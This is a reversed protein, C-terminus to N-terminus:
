SPQHQLPLVARVRFGGEPRVGAVITGGYLAARERMGILGHGSGNGNPGGTGDDLVEITVDDNGYSVVVDARGAAAHKRVNTLAEQVIRYASLEIGPALPKQAGEIRLSTPLGAASVDHVLGGLRAISPQPALSLAHEDHRLLGLLRRMEILTQGGTERISRFSERASQPDEELVREGAGAQVVMVSVSHAIVDHLERAIRAREEAVARRADADRDREVSALRDGLQAALLQRRRFVRGVVYAVAIWLAFPIYDGAPQGGLAGTLVGAAVGVVVVGLSVAADRGSTYAAAAYTAAILAVFAEFPGQQSLPFLVYIWALSAGMVVALVALPARRRAVFPVAVAVLFLFDLARPPPYSRGPSTAINVLGFVLLAIAIAADGYRDLQRWLTRVTM